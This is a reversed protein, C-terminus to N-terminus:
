ECFDTDIIKEESWGVMPKYIEKSYSYWNLHLRTICMGLNACVAPGAKRLTKNGSVIM